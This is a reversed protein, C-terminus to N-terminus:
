NLEGSLGCIAGGSILLSLTATLDHGEGAADIAAAFSGGDLLSALFADTGPPLLHPVPDFGPRMVVVSEPRMGPAPAGAETNARWISHIPWDSVILRLAPSLVPVLSLFTEPPITALTRHPVPIADAAHYSHRIALELRAVDALYGLHAVPPFTKLFGPFESGYLMLIRSTPLHTRLFDRAMAAFFEDGVLRRVVPFGAELARVLGCAVNNRYVDFRRGAPRGKPDVLGAPVALGPDLLAAHFASQIM